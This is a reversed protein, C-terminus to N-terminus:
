DSDLLTAWFDKAPHGLQALAWAINNVAFDEDSETIKRGSLVYKKEIASFGRITLSEFLDRDQPFDQTALAVTNAATHAAEFWRRAPEGVAIGTASSVDSGPVVQVNISTASAVRALDNQLVSSYHALFERVDLLALQDGFSPSVALKALLMTENELLNEVIKPIDEVYGASKEEVSSIAALASQSESTDVGALSERALQYDHVDLYITALPSAADNWFQTGALGQYHDKALSYLGADHFCFALHLKAELNGAEIETWLLDEAGLINGQAALETARSISM